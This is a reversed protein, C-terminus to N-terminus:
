PLVISKYCRSYLVHPTHVANNLYPTVVASLFLPRKTSYHHARSSIERSERPVFALLGPGRSLFRWTVLLVLYKGSRTEDRGTGM